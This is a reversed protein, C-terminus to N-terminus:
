MTGELNTGSNVTWREIKNMPRWTFKSDWWTWLPFNAGHVWSGIWNAFGDRSMTVPEETVTGVLAWVLTAPQKHEWLASLGWSSKSSSIFTVNSRYGPRPKAESWRTDRNDVYQLVWSELTRSTASRVGFNLVCLSWNILDRIILVKPKRKESM